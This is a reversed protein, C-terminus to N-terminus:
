MGAHLDYGKLCDKLTMGVGRKLHESEMGYLRPGDVDCRRSDGIFLVSEPSNFELKRCVENYIRREPKKMGVEFSLVYADLNPLLRRVAPGYGGALNSCVAIKICRMRLKQITDEVEDFLVLQDCAAEMQAELQGSLYGIGLDQAIQGITHNSTMLAKRIDGHERWYPRFIKYPKETVHESSILTGFVDFCVADIKSM